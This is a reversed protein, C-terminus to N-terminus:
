RRGLAITVVEDPNIVASDQWGFKQANDFADRDMDVADIQKALITVREIPVAVLRTGWDGLFRAWALWNRYPVVLSIGGNTARVVSSVYGLTQDDDDLVPLGILDKVLVPQPYRLMMKRAVPTDKTIPERAGIAASATAAQDTALPPSGSKQSLAGGTLCLSIACFLTTRATIMSLIERWSVFLHKAHVFWRAKSVLGSTAM